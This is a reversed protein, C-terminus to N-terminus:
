IIYHNSSTGDIRKCGMKEYFPKASELAYLDVPKGSFKGRLFKICASGIRSFPRKKESLTQCNPRVIFRDLCNMKEGLSVQMLALVKSAQMRQYDSQQSTLAYFRKDKPFQPMYFWNSISDSLDSNWKDAINGICNRDERGLEVVAAKFEKGNKLIDVSKLRTGYFNVSDM